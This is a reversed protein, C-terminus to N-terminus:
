DEDEESEDEEDPKPERKAEELNYRTRIEPLARVEEETMVNNSILAVLTEAQTKEMAVKEAQSPEWIKQFEVWWNEPEKGKYFDDQSLFILKTLYQIPQLLDKKQWSQVQDFWNGRDADGTANLGAPAMGQFLTVPIRTVASLKNMFRDLADPIGALSSATKSFTELDADILNTNILHRSKDLFDLRKVAVSEKGSKMLDALGKMSLTQTVFDDIISEVASYVGSLQRIEDYCSQLYSDGWGLNQQQTYDDVPAGDMRITRSEHVKFPMGMLPMVTYWEPTGFKPHSPDAYLDSSSYTVRWRNYVHIYHVKRIQNLSIPRDYKQGDDVGIVGLSGGFLRSWRIMNELAKHIGAEDMRSIVMAEPDGMIRFGSKMMAETPIEIIQKAIGDGRYLSRVVAENLVAQPSYGAGSRKDVGQIGLGTFFNNWGDKRTGEAVVPQIKTQVPTQASDKRKAM